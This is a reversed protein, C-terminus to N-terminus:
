SRPLSDRCFLSRTPKRIIRGSETDWLTLTDSCASLVRLGDRSTAVGVIAASPRSGLTRLDRGSEVDWIKLTKDASASVTLRGDGSMAVGTVAASHGELTRLENDKETDWVKLTRDESASIARRGDRSMAVANVVNSHGRLTHLPSKDQTDWVNLTRDASASIARRGDSSVAIGNVSESHGPPTPLERLIQIGSLKREKLLTRLEQGTEVDWVKLTKDDSASVALLGDGTVAVGNVAGAHGVLTYLARLKDIDWVKL